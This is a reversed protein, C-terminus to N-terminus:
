PRTTPGGVRDLVHRVNEDLSNVADVTIHPGTLPPYAVRMREVHDWGVEHWGPIDRTRNAVRSRHLEIDTCVCEVVLLRTDYRAASDQWRAAVADDVLCDVVASQGLMLQRIVLTDLLNYYMALYTSRDLRDLVGYPKLAGMLWDGAFAPAGISAAVRDALASKGTGPLGTFVVVNRQDEM